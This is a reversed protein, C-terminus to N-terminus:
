LPVCSDKLLQLANTAMKLEYRKAIYKYSTGGESDFIDIMDEQLRYVEEELLGIINQM